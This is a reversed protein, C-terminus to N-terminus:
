IHKHTDHQWIMCCQFIVFLRILLIIPLQHLMIHNLGSITRRGTDANWSWTIMVSVHELKEYHCKHHCHFSAHLIIDHSKLLAHREFPVSFENENVVPHFIAMWSLVDMYHQPTLQWCTLNYPNLVAHYDNMHNSCSKEWSQAMFIPDPVM